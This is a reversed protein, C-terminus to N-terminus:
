ERIRIRHEEVIWLKGTLEEPTFLPSIRRLIDLVHPKEQRKLRLVVLGHYADPRYTRIDAFDTDLTIVARQESQCVAAIESDPVGRMGQDLLTTADNGAQRIIPAAEVPLNEDIKFKM